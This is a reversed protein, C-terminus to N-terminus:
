LMVSMAGSLHFLIALLSGLPLVWISICTQNSEAATKLPKFFFPESPTHNDGFLGFARVCKEIDLGDKFFIMYPTTGDERYDLLGIMGEPNMSEGTFFQCLRHFFM